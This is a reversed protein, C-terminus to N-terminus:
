DFDANGQWVLAMVLNSPVCVCCVTDQCLDHALALIETGSFSTSTFFALAIVKWLVIAIELVITLAGITNTLM